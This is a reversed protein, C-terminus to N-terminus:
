DVGGYAWQSQSAESHRNESVMLKRVPKLGHRLIDHQPCVIISSSIDLHSSPKSIEVREPPSFREPIKLSLDSFDIEIDHLLDKASDFLYCERSSQDIGSIIYYTDAKVSGKVQSGKTVSMYETMFVDAISSTAVSMFLAILTLLKRM